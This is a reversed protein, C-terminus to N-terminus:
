HYKSSYFHIGICWLRHYPCALDSMWIQFVLYPGCLLLSASTDFLLIYYYLAVWAIFKPLMPTLYTCVQSLLLGCLGMIHSRSHIGLGFAAMFNCNHLFEQLITSSQCIRWNWLRARHDWTCMATARQQPRIKHPPSFETRPTKMSLNM